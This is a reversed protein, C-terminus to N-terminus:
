GNRKMVVQFMFDAGGLLSWIEEDNRWKISTLYDDPEFARLYVLGSRM